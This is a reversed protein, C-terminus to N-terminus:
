SQAMAPARRRWIAMGDVGRALLGLSASQPQAHDLIVSNGASTRLGLILTSIAKNPETEYAFGTLVASVVAAKRITVNFRAWGYHVEGKILFKFGVFHNRLTNTGTRNAKWPGSASLDFTYSNIDNAEVMKNGGPYKGDPGVRAGIRLASAVSGEGFVQNSSLGYVRLKGHQSNFATAHVHNTTCVGECHSTHGIVFQYDNIGDHNLDLYYTGPGAHVNAPTYVVEADAPQAGVLAGVGAATAAAMYALLNKDLKRNLATKRRANLRKSQWEKKNM